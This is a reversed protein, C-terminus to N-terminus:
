FFFKPNFNAKTTLHFLISDGDLFLSAFSEISDLCLHNFTSGKNPYSFFPASQFFYQNLDLSMKLPPIM